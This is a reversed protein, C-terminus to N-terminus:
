QLSPTIMSRICRDFSNPQAKIGRTNHVRDALERRYVAESGAQERRRELMVIHIYVRQFLLHKNGSLLNTGAELQRRCPEIHVSQLGFACLNIFYRVIRSTSAALVILSLKLACTVYVM